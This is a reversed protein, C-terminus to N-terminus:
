PTGKVSEVELVLLTNGVRIISGHKIANKGKVRHEPSSEGGYRVFTGHESSLDEVVSTEAEWVIQAHKKSVPLDKLVIDNSPDSGITNVKDSRLPYKITLSRPKGHFIIPTTRGLRVYAGEKLANKTLIRKEQSPEGSYSVFTGESSGLDEVVDRGAEQFIRAHRDAVSRDKIVIDNNAGSGLFIDPKTLPLAASLFATIPALKRAPAGVPPVSLLYPQRRRAILAPVGKPILLVSMLVLLFGFLIWSSATWTGLGSPPLVGAVVYHKEDEQTVGQLSLTVKVPRRTGDEVPRPSQYVLRYEKMIQESILKYVGTLEAASPALFMRGGTEKALKELTGRDIDARGLGITFLSFGGEKAKRIADTRSHESSNDLGDTLLIAAKRGRTTELIEAGKVAADYLATNGDAVIKDIRSTLLSKNSTLQEVIQVQDDFVVVAARDNASMLGIFSRAALKAGELKSEAKMSGSRDIILVTTIGTLQEEPGIFVFGVKKGQEELQFNQGTLGTVPNDYGNTVSVYVTIEPFKSKDIQSITLITGQARVAVSIALLCLLMFVTLLGLRTAKNM